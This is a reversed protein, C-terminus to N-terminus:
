GDQDNNDSKRRSAFKAYGVLGIFFIVMAGLAILVMNTPDAGGM